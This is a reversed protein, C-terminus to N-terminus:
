EKVTKLFPLIEKTYYPEQTGWFIYNLGIFDKGFDYIEKISVRKGTEPNIIECNGDQLALGTVLDKSYEKLFKYGNNMHGKNYLKIDPGGMGIGKEKALNYIEKLYSKDTWPLWEGPMFNAYQIVVSKSFAKKAVIM